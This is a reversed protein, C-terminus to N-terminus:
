AWSVLPYGATERNLQATSRITMDRDEDARRRALVNGLKKELLWRLAETATARSKPGPLWLNSMFSWMEDDLGRSICEPETPRGPTHGSLKRAQVAVAPLNYFPRHGSYLEYCVCGFSYMDCRRQDLKGINTTATNLLEPSIYHLTGGGQPATSTQLLAQSVSSTSFGFDAVCARGSPTVLVNNGNLDGHCVHPKLTHLYELGSAVDLVFSNRDTEPHRTIYSNLTGNEMWLSVMYSNGERQHVGLLPLCNPHRIHWWVIVEYAFTKKLMENADNQRIKLKKIAVLRGQMRAQFVEGFGGQGVPRTNPDPVELNHIVLSMPYRGSKKSLRILADLYCRRYWPDEINRNDSELLAQLLDIMDQAADDRLAFIERAADTNNLTKAVLAAI